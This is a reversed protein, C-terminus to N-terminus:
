SRPGPWAGAGLLGAEWRGAEGGGGPPGAPGRAPGRWWARQGSGLAAGAYAVHASQDSDVRGSDWLDAAGAHLAAESRAAQIQYASQRAGRRDDHLEWSLRPQATDIGLPNTLYECRLNTIRLDSTM